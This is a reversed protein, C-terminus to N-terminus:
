SRYLFTQKLCFDNEVKNICSKIEIEAVNM